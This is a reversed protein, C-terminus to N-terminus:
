ETVMMWGHVNGGSLSAFSSETRVCLGAEYTGAARLVRSGSTAVVETDFDFITVSQFRGGSFGVPAPSDALQYCLDYDVTESGADSANSIPLSASGTLRQRGTLTFSATRGVFV